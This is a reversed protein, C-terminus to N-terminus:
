QLSELVAAFEDASVGPFPADSPDSPASPTRALEAGLALLENRYGQAFTAITESEFQAPSYTFSFRLTREFVVGVIDLVNYRELDPDIPAGPAEGALTLLAERDSGFAGLYNFGIRPLAPLHSAVASPALYRAVGFTMGRRPLNRLAADIHRVHDLATTGVRELRFPFLSTFWGVTRAVNADDLAERGHGELTVLSAGSGHRRARLRALAALFLSAGEFRRHPGRVLADTEAEDFAIEHSRCAGYRNGGAPHDPALLLPEAATDKTWFRAEEACAESQAFRRLQQSWQAFSDSKEPLPEGRYARELDEIVLRASIADTVLHHVVLVVEDADPLRLLAAAFLPGNALDLSEELRAAAEEDLVAFVVPAVAGPVQDITEGVIRFTSRLADHHEWVAQLAHRLRTEDLREAARVRLSLNFRNRNGAHTEFFWRQVPSLPAPGVVEVANRKAELPQLTPALAAISPREFLTRIDLKWRAARLRSSMQISKISDGGLAFYDATISVRERGLLESWIGALLREREDRPEVHEEARVPAAIPAPLRRRDIKGTTGVPMEDLAILHAPIMYAPLADGLFARLAAPDVPGRTTYYAALEVTGVATRAPVVIAVVIAAHARLAAEIEGPEVRFGRVKVQADIRGLFEIEGAANWRARDGTRYLRGGPAFPDPTFVVRADPADVLYGRAVGDGGTCLEGPVGPPSLRLAEDLIYARSNGIPRGIPVVGPVDPPVRYFTSFTTNETPGYVHVLDLAPCAARVAAFHAASANEGGTLLVRLGAFLRPDFEAFQNFLSTTLFLVSTRNVRLDAGFREPDTLTAAAQISVCAGNLLAGWIEFTCADFAISGAQAVRDDPRVDIYNTSRVLRVIARHEILTGKPQGSSGSTYIAYALDAGSAGVRDFPESPTALTPVDCEEVGPIALPAIDAATLICRAQTEKLLSEARRRPLAPDLPVYAAGLKLVALMAVITWESRPLRIAVFDGPRVGAAHLAHALGDARANLVGYSLVRGEATVAPREPAVRAQEAFLEAVSMEGPYAVRPGASAALLPALDDGLIAEIDLPADPAHVFRDVIRAFYIGMRAADAEGFVSELYYLNLTHAGFTAGISFDLLTNTSENAILTRTTAVLRADLRELVHFDVFNFLVDFLPNGDEATAGALRAIRRTSLREHPRIEDLRAHMAAIRERPTALPPVAHRVPVSNLCCGAILEGDPILPRAHGVVGFLLQSEGTLLGLWAHFAALYVERVPVGSARALAISRESTDADFRHVWKHRASRLADSPATRGFPLPTKEYGALDDRWFRATEDDTEVLLQDAVFDRYTARLPEPEYTPDSKCREYTELLEALFSANSWGDLIAHHHNWIVAVRPADLRVLRLRWLGPRAPDFPRARDDALAAVFFAEHTAPDVQSRDIVAFDLDIDRWVIHASEASSHFSTRLVAHKRVLKQMAASFAGADFTEDHMEFAFQVHYVASQPDLLSHFVMGAEIDSMPFYTECRDDLLPALDPDAAIARQRQALLEDARAREDGPTAEAARILTALGAVTPSRFVDKMAFRVGLEAEVRSILRIVKISDGGLNFYSEDVSPVPVGLVRSWLDALATEIRDSPQRGQVGQLRAHEPAPLRREDIKNNTTLPLAPLAVVHAPVMYDPVRRRLHARVDDANCAARTVIYAILESTGDGTARARVHAQAIREEGLLVREIEGTEVRYGRIQVQADNRGLYALTGDARWRGLDGSKYLREGPRYPNDVFREATLEPRNLYARCVGSGGVYLEGAVGIPQLRREANFVYVHTQPLPVGIPSGPSPAAIAASDLACFTVHVTTETIGFMNILRVRDLPYWAVWPQLSQPVLRDGGFIVYRLHEACRHVTARAECAVFAAFAAPTQNLVSVRERTVLAWFREADRVTERDPVVLRGGFLLAGYMEWVSFDFCTAHALVWTDVESFDFPLRSNCVLAVVSRHEVVCGKPVGTSGSTYIVYAADTPQARLPPNERAGRLREVDAVTVNWLNALYSGGSVLVRPRSDDLVLALRETPAATDLPVYAAGAKLVGLLTAIADASPDLLVAVRDGAVVGHDARLATAIENARANLDAYTTPGDATALAIRDAYHAVIAEFRGVLTTDPVDAATANFDDILQRREAVTVLELADIPMEPAALIARALTQFHGSMREITAPAFLRTNYNIVLRAGNASLGFYFSLDFKAGANGIDLPSVTFDGVQHSGSAHDQAIVAVSFIPSRSADPELALDGVILDFPYTAHDYAEHTTATTQALAASFGCAGDVTDRLVLTNVFNGVVGAFEARDRGAVPTGLTIEPEGTIRYLLVKTLATLLQFPTVRARRAFADLDRALVADIEAAVNAGAYTMDAPRVFDLPLPLAANDGALKARWYDRSAAFSATASENRQWAAYTRYALVPPLEADDAVFRLLDALLVEQSWQDSITHHANCSFIAREHGVRILMARVLPGASLDFPRLADQRVLALARAAPDVADRVDLCVLGPGAPHVVQQVEDDVLAFTTRLSEHREVLRAYAREFAAVDIVGDLRVAGPMNYVALGPEIRDLLWLRKQAHSAPASTRQEIM